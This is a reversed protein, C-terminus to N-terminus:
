WPLVVAQKVEDGAVPCAGQLERQEVMRDVVQVLRANVPTPLAPQHGLEAIWSHLHTAEM